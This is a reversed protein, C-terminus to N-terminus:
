KPEALMDSPPVFQKFNFIPPFTPDPLTSGTQSARIFDFVTLNPLVVNNTQVYANWFEIM